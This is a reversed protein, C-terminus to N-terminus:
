RPSLRRLPVPDHDLASPGTVANAISVDAATPQAGDVQVAQAHFLPAAASRPGAVTQGTVIVRRHNIVRPGGLARLTQDDVILETAKGQDDVLM